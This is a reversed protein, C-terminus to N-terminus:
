YAIVHLIRTFPGGACALGHWAARTLVPVGPMIARRTSSVRKHFGQQKKGADRKATGM